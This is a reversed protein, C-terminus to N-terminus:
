GLLAPERELLFEQYLADLLGETRRVALSEALTLQKTSTITKDFLWGAFALRDAAPIHQNLVINLIACPSTKGRYYGDREGLAAGLGPQAEALSYAVQQLATKM